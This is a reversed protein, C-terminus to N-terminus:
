RTKAILHSMNKAIAKLKKYSPWVDDYLTALAKVLEKKDGKLLDKQISYDGKCLISLAKSLVEKDMEYLMQIVSEKEPLEGLIEGTLVLNNASPSPIDYVRGGIIFVRVM